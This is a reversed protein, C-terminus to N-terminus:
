RKVLEAAVFGNHGYFSGEEIRIEDDPTGANIVHCKTGSPVLTILNSEIMSNASDRDKSAIFQTYMDYNEATSGVPVMDKPGVIQADAGPDSQSSSGHPQSLRRSLALFIMVCIVLVLMPGGGPKRSM